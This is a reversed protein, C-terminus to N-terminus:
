LYNSLCIDILIKFPALTQLQIRQSNAITLVNMFNLYSTHQMAVAVLTLHYKRQGAGGSPCAWPYDGM